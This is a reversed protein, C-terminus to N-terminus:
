KSIGTGSPGSLLLGRPITAGMFNYKEPNKLIDVIEVIEQKAEDLGAVDNFSVKVNSEFKMFDDGGGPIM